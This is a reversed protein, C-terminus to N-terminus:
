RRTSHVIGRLGNMISLSWIKESFFEREGM